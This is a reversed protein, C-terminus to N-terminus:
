RPSSELSAEDVRYLTGWQADLVRTLKPVEVKRAVAEWSRYYYGYADPKTSGMLRVGGRTTDESLVWRPHWVERPSNM